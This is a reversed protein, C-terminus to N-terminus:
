AQGGEVDAVVRLHGRVTKLRGVLGTAANYTAYRGAEDYGIRKPDHKSAIGEYREIRREVWELIEHISM